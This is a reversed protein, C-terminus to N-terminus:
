FVVGDNDDDDLVRPKIPRPEPEPLQKLEPIWVNVPEPRIQRLAARAVEESCPTMSYIAGNGFFKTYAQQGGCEPVDVRLLSSGGITAECVKGAIRAHGFLELIAWSEFKEDEM